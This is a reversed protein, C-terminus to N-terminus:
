PAVAGVSGERENVTQTGQTTGIALVATAVADMRQLQRDIGDITGDHHVRGHATAAVVELPYPMGVLVTGSLVEDKGSVSEAIIVGQMGYAATAVAHKYKIKTEKVIRRADIVSGYAVICFGEQHTGGALEEM